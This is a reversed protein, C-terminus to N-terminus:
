LFNFIIFADLTIASITEEGTEKGVLNLMKYSLYLDLNVVPVISIETGIGVGGGFRTNGSYKTEIGETKQTFDGFSNFSLDLAIYPDFGLPAPIFNYQAGVGIEFVSQTNEVEQSSPNTGSGSFSHYLLFARPTIPIIPLDVKGVLGLNWETSYGLGGESVKKTLGDPALAQTLGGGVGIKVLQAFASAPLLLLFIVAFSIISNRKMKKGTKNISEL